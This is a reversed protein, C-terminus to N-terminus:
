GSFGFTGIPTQKASTVKRIIELTEKSLMKIADMYAKISPEIRSSINLDVL